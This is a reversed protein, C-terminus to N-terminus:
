RFCSEVEQFSQPWATRPNQGSNNWIPRSIGDRHFVGLVNAPEDALIIALLIKIERDIRSPRRARALCRLEIDQRDLIRKNIEIRFSVFCGFGRLSPATC